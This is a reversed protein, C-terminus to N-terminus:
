ASALRQFPEAFRDVNEVKIEGDCVVLRYRLQLPQGAQLQVSAPAAICPNLMGIQPANYWRTEPNQPHDIVTVGITKGSNLIITYAYWPRQPWDTEPKLHNPNPLAVEGNPDRIVGKGDKRCKVCFGGFSTQDLTLDLAPVLQFHLDLIYCGAEQRVTATLTEDFFKDTAALWENRLRIVAQKSNSEVLEVGLNKILRDKVPAWEGWGWFDARRRWSSVSHWALFVGRHHPHDDPALDVVHEGSPSFIPYFCCASNATLPSDAPKKTLYHLVSHGDPTKLELGLDNSILRYASEGGPPVIALAASACLALNGLM